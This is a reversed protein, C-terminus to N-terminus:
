FPIECHCAVRTSHVSCVEKNRIANGSTPVGIVEIWGKVSANLPESLNITVDLDDTTKARIVSSHREAEQEVNVHISVYENIYNRLMAGNVMTRATFEIM